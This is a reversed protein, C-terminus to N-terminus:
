LEIGILEKVKTKYADIAELDTYGDGWLCHKLPFQLLDHLNKIEEKYESIRHESIKAQRKHEAAALAKLKSTCSASAPYHSQNSVSDNDHNKIIKPEHSDTMRKDFVQDSKIKQVREWIYPVANNMFKKIRQERSLERTFFRGTGDPLYYEAVSVGDYLMKIFWRFSATSVSGPVVVSVSEGYVTLNAYVTIHTVDLDITAQLIPDRWEGGYRASDNIIAWIYELNKNTQLTDFPWIEIDSGDCACKWVLGEWPCSGYYFETM